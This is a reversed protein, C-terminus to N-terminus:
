STVAKIVAFGIVIAEGLAGATLNRVNIAASGNASQANLMYAGATGGSIHNLILVDGATIASNTLRFSVVRNAALSAANMRIQGTIKNLTVGTSKSTAQTVTGGAGTAYGMGAAPSTSIMAGNVTLDGNQVVTGGGTCTWGNTNAANKVALAVRSAAGLQKVMWVYGSGAPEGGAIGAGLNGTFLFPADTFTVASALDFEPSQFNAGGGWFYNPLGSYHAGGVRADEGFEVMPAPFGEIHMNMFQCGVGNLRIAKPRTAPAVISCGFYTGIFKIGNVNGASAAHHDITIAAQKVAGTAPDITVPDNGAYGVDGGFVMNENVTSGAGAFIFFPWGCSAIRPNYIFNQTTEFGAALTTIEIGKELWRIFPDYISCTNCKLLRIGVSGPEWAAPAGGARSIIPAHIKVHITGNSSLGGITIGPGVFNLSLEAGYMIWTQEDYLAVLGKEPTNGDGDLRYIGPPFLVTGSTAASTIAAQIAPQDNVAGNGVAGFDRVNVSGAM